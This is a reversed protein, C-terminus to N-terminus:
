KNYSVIRNNIDGNEVHMIGNYVKQWHDRNKNARVNCSNCLTILNEPWCNKKNYDIHHITLRKSTKWCDTNQCQYNDRKLIVTKLKKNFELGYPDCTIGGKWNYHNEGTIQLNQKVKSCEPCRKGNRFNGWRMSHEHYEPCRYRLKHADNIYKNDLLKYDYKEFFEKIVFIDPKGQGDCYPCQHGQQYNTWCISHEHGRPCIYDLKQYCNIYENTLLIYGEKEFESRVFEIDLKKKGM